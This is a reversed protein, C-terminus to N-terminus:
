PSHQHLLEPCSVQLGLSAAIVAGHDVGLVFYPSLEFGASGHTLVCCPERSDPKVTRLQESNTLFCVLYNM